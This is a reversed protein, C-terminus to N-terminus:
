KRIRFEYEGQEDRKSLLYPMKPWWVDQFHDYRFTQQDPDTYNYYQEQAYYLITNDELALFGAGYRPHKLVQTYPKLLLSDWKGYDSSNKDLNIFVYYLSGNFCQYIKWCHPSYHIGRLVGRSSTSLCIYPFHIKPPLNDYEKEIELEVFNGRHDWEVKPELLWIDPLRWEKINM